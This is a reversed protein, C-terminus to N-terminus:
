DMDQFITVVKDIAKEMKAINKDYYSVIDRNSKYAMEIFGLFVNSFSYVSGIDYIRTNFIIDLMDSSENDRVYKRQL